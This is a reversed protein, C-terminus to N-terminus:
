YDSLDHGLTLKKARRRPLISESVETETSSGEEAGGSGCHADDLALVEEDGERGRAATLRREGYWLGGDEADREAVVVNRQGLVRHERELQPRASEVAGVRPEARQRERREEAARGGARDRLRLPPEVARGSSSAGASRENSYASSAPRGAPSASSGFSRAAITWPSSVAGVPWARSSKREPLAYAPPTAPFM